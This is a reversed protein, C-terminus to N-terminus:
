KCLFERFIVRSIWYKKLSESLLHMALQKVFSEWIFNFKRKVITNLWHEEECGRGLSESSVPAM